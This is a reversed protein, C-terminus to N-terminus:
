KSLVLVLCMLIIVVLIFKLYLKFDAKELAAQKAIEARRDERSIDYVSKIDTKSPVDPTVIFDSPTEKNAHEGIPPPAYIVFSALESMDEVKSWNKEGNRCVLTGAKPAREQIQQITLPGVPHNDEVIYYLTGKGVSPSVLPNSIKSSLIVGTGKLWKQIPNSRFKPRQNVVKGLGLSVMYSGLFIASIAWSLWQTKMAPYAYANAYIVFLYIAWLLLIAGIVLRWVSYTTPKGKASPSFIVMLIGPIFFFSISMLVVVFSWWGGIHKQRGVFEAMLYAIVAGLGLAAFAQSPEM